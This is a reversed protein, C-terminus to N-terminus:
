NKTPELTCFAIEVLDGKQLPIKFVKPNGSFKSKAKSWFIDFSGHVTPHVFVIRCTKSTSFHDDELQYAQELRWHHFMRGHLNMTSGNRGFIIADETASATIFILDEPNETLNNVTKIIRGPDLGLGNARFSSGLLHVQGDYGDVIRRTLAELQSFFPFAVFLFLILKKTQTIKTKGIIWNILIGVSIFLLSGGFRNHEALVYSWGKHFGIACLLWLSIPWLIWIFRRVIPSSQTIHNQIAKLLLLSFVLSFVLHILMLGNIEMTKYLFDHLPGFALYKAFYAFHGHPLYLWGGGLLFCTGLWWGRSTSLYHEGYQMLTYGHNTISAESYALATSGLGTTAQWFHLLFPLLSFSLSFVLVASLRKFWASKWQLLELCLFIACACSFVFHSYKFWYVSGGVLGVGTLLLSIKFLSTEDKLFSRSIKLSLLFFWPLIALGFLDSSAIGSFNNGISICFIFAVFTRIRQNIELEELVKLTGLGASFSALFVSLRTADALAFGLLYVFQILYLPGPPYWFGSSLDSSSMDVSRPSVVTNIEETIGNQYQKLGVLLNSFDDGLSFARFLSLVALIFWLCVFSRQPNWWSLKFLRPIPIKVAWKEFFFNATKPSCLKFGVSASILIALSKNLSYLGLFIPEKSPLLAWETAKWLFLFGVTTSILDWDKSTLKKLLM